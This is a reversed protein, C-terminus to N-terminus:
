FIASKAVVLFTRTGMVLIAKTGLSSEFSFRYSLPAVTQGPSMIVLAGGLGDASSPVQPGLVTLATQRNEGVWAILKFKSVNSVNGFVRTQISRSTPCVLYSRM